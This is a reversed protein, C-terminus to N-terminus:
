RAADVADVQDLKRRVVPWVGSPHASGAQQQEHGVMCGNARRRPVGPAKLRARGSNKDFRNLELVCCVARALRAPM